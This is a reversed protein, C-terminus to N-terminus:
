RARAKAALLRAAVRRLTRVVREPGYVVQAHTFRLPLLGAAALAQDRERDKAQQAPTRHYRLGDTEVVLGLEPWHFDVKLGCLRTGTQPIPLGARCTLPIFRRELESDTLVFTQSDLVRRLRGVGQLGPRAELAASLADLDILDLKDAENIARELRGTDLRAGLDILTRLPSTVPIGDCEARDDQHLETRQHVRLGAPRSGASPVTVEM